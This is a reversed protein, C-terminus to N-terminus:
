ESRMVVRGGDGARFDWGVEGAFQLHVATDEVIVEGHGGCRALDAAAEVGGDAARHTAFQRCRQLLFELARRGEPRAKFQHGGGFQVNLVHARVNGGIVQADVSHTLTTLAIALHSLGETDGPRLTTHAIAPHSLGDTWLGRHRYAHTHHTSYCPIVTRRDM